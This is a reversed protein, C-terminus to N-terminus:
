AECPPEDALSELLKAAAAVHGGQGTIGLRVAGEAGYVGGGAILRASAATLMEVAQLETIVEGPMALMGPGGTGPANLQEALEAIDECVRKELGVPVILKVKRGAVLPIAAGITGAWRDAVLVGAQKRRINVANAGKIVVDGASLDESVDFIQKGERWKGDVLVVDGSFSAEISRKDFGPPVVLGRRFGKPTFNAGQGAASLLEDAVYGNTTGAVIVVTGTKMAKVVAPHIAVAKAILRKGMAPTLVFQKM